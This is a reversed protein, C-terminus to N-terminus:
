PVAGVIELDTEEEEAPSTEGSHEERGRGHYGLVDIPDIFELDTMQEEIAGKADAERRRM